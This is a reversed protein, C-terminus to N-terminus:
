SDFHVPVCDFVDDGISVGSISSCGTHLMVGESSRSDEYAFPRSDEFAFGASSTRTSGADTSGLCSAFSSKMGVHEVGLLPSWPGFFPVVIEESAVGGALTLATLRLDWAGPLPPLNIGCPGNSDVIFRTVAQVSSDSHVEASVVVSQGAPISELQVGVSVSSCDGTTTASSTPL